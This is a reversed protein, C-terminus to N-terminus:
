NQYKYRIVVYGSGGANGVTVGPTNGSAGGGGGGFNATGATGAPSGGATGGTGGGGSGGAGGAGTPNNTPHGGGGAGGARTTDVGNIASPSGAGGAGGVGGSGPVSAGVASAGGGGSGSEGVPNGSAGGNNGQSPSVPPTNGAGGSGGKTSGGGSGGSVGNHNSGGSGSTGRGGTGGGASSISSFTSTGGASTSAGGAGITIPYAQASVSLGATGPLAGPSYNTRFGGAGGGGAGKEGCNSFGGGAGGAIVLYTVANSGSATGANSVTFTGSSEFIHIKEDGSTSETGGSAIVYDSTSATADATSIVIWGKTGDVYVLNIAAGDERIFYDSASGEINSGNRGITINNTKANNGYDSIAIQNGASPSAPLNATVAGGATNVFYGESSVGTFTSTKIAGTQWDIAGFGTATGNNQLTVGSPVTFTDGSDGLTFATGTAPSIKNVKIESAM